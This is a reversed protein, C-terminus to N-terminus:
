DWVWSSIIQDFDPIADAFQHPLATMTINYADGERFLTLTRIRVTPSGEFATEYEAETSASGGVQPGPGNSIVEAGVQALQQDNLRLYDRSTFGRLPERFVNVNTRFGDVVEDASWAALFEPRAASLDRGLEEGTVDLAGRALAQLTEDDAASWGEPLEVEFNAARTLDPGDDDDGCGVLAAALLLALAAILRHRSRM